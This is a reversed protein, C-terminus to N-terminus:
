STDFKQLTSMKSLTEISIFNEAVLKQKHPKLKIMKEHAQLQIAVSVLLWNAIEWVHGEIKKRAGKEATSSRVNFLGIKM